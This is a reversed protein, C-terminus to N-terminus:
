DFRWFLSATPVWATDNRNSLSRIYFPAKFVLGVHDSILWQLGPGIYGQGGRRDKSGAVTLTKAPFGDVYGFGGMVFLRATDERKASLPYFRLGANYAWIQEAPPSAGFPLGGTDNDAEAFTAGIELDLRDILGVAVAATYAAGAEVSADNGVGIFAGLGFEVDVNSLAAAPLASGALLAASLALSLVCAQTRAIRHNPM